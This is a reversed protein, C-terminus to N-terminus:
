IIKNKITEQPVPRLFNINPYGLTFVSYVIHNKPIGLINKIKKSLHGRIFGMFCSGLGEENALLVMNYAIYHTDEDIFIGKKSGHVFVLCPANFTIGDNEESMSDFLKKYRVIRKFNDKLILKAIFCAIPNNLIKFKNKLSNMVDLKIIKITDYNTVVTIEASKQNTASPYASARKIIKELLEKSVKQDTYQRLSRRNFLIESLPTDPLISYDWEIANSPCVAYCHGCMICSGMLNAKNNELSISHMACENACLGCGICKENNFIM